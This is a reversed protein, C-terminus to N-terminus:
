ADGSLRETVINEISKVKDYIYGVAYSTPAKENKKVIDGNENVENYTATVAYEGGQNIISIIKIAKM